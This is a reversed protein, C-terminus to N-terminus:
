ATVEWSTVRARYCYPCPCTRDAEHRAAMREWALHVLNDAIAGSQLRVLYDCVCPAGKCRICIPGRM